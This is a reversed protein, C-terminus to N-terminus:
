KHAEYKLWNQFDRTFLAIRLSSVWRKEKPFSCRVDIVGDDLHLKSITQQGYGRTNLIKKPSGKIQFNIKQKIDDIISLSRGICQDINKRSMLISGNIAGIKGNKDYHFGVQDYLNGRYGYRKLYRVRKYRDSKYTSKIKKRDDTIQKKSMYKFVSEDLKIGELDLDYISDSKSATSFFLSLSIFIFLIKKM